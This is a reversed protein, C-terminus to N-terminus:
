KPSVVSLLGRLYTIFEKLLWKERHNGGYVCKNALRWIDGWAVFNLPHGCVESPLQHRASEHGRESIVVFHEDAVKSRFRSAYRELQHLSPLAWRRKAEVIIHCDGGIIEIDTYGGDRVHEQLNILWPQDAKAKPAISAVFADLFRPCQALAWGLSFTMDNENSGLLSFVNQVERGHLSLTAM